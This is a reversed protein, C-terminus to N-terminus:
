FFVHAEIFYREANEAIQAKPGDNFRAGARIETCQVPFFEVIFSWRERVNLAMDLDDDLVEHTVKLNLGKTVLVNGEVLTALKWTVVKAIRDRIHNAEVLLTVIGIRVGGFGNYAFRSDGGPAENWHISSGLQFMEHVFSARGHWAKDINNDSSSQTGNTISAALSFPGPEAGIELGVDSSLMSTSTATRVFANNDEIRLGYPLFFRGVKVWTNGPLGYLMGFAERTSAGGPALKEDLYFLLRDKLLNAEVYLVAEKIASENTKTGTPPEVTLNEARLNAGLALYDNIRGSFFGPASESSEPQGEDATVVSEGNWQLQWTPLDQQSFVNGYDNRRGGGTRNSHCQSCKMGTRIALYPEALAPLPLALVAGLVFAGLLTRFNM